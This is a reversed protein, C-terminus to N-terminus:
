WASGDGLLPDVWDECRGLKRREARSYPIREYTGMGDEANLSKVIRCVVVVSDHKRELETQNHHKTANGHDTRDWNPVTSRGFGNNTALTAM